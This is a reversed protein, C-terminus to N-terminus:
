KKIRRRGFIGLGILGIGMLSLTMPEPTITQSVESVNSIDKFVWDEAAPAVSVFTSNSTNQSVSGSGLTTGTCTGANAVNGVLVQTSCVIENVGGGPGSSLDIGLVGPTISFALEIDEGSSMNTGISLVSIGDSGITVTLATPTQFGGNVGVEFNSFDESGITCGNAGGFDGNGSIVTNNTVNQNVITYGNSCMPDASAILSAAALGTALLLIRKM